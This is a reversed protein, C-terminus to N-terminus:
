MERVDAEHFRIAMGERTALIVEDDGNTIQVDILADGEAINIANIGSARVHRYASLATKKVTGQRTAFIPFPDDSSESLPALAAIQADPRRSLLNVIPQGRANRGAQPIEHVKLWYCHGQRTFFMVYDHTQALFLHEVWDEERTEMGQLGRSG